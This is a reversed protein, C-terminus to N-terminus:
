GQGKQKSSAWPLLDKGSGRQLTTQVLGIIFELLGRWQKEGATVGERHIQLIV